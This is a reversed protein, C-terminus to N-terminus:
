KFELIKKKLLVVDLVCCDNLSGGGVILVCYM